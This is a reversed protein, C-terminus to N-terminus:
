TSTLAREIKASIWALAGGIAGAILFTATSEIIGFHFIIVYLMAFLAIWYAGVQLTAQLKDKRQAGVSRKSWFATFIGAAILWGVTLAQLPTHFSDGSLNIQDGSGSVYSLEMFTSNYFSATVITGTPINQNVGRIVVKETGKDAYTIEVRTHRGMEWPYIEEKSVVLATRRQQCDQTQDNSCVPADEFSQRILITSILSWLVGCTLLFVALYLTFHFPKRLTM